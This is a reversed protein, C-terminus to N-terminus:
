AKAVNRSAKVYEAIEREKKKKNYFGAFNIAIVALPLVMLLVGFIACFCSVIKGFGTYPSIDGYGVTTITVLAFWFSHPLSRFPTGEEEYEAYYTLSGFFFVGVILVQILLLLEKMSRWLIKAVMQLGTSYRILKLIWIVRLMNLLLLLMEVDYGAISQNGYEDDQNGYEDYDYSSIDQTDNVDGYLYDKINESNTLALLIFFHFIALFDVIKMWVNKPSFWKNPSFVLRLIFELTVFAVCFLQILILKPNDVQRGKDDYGSVSPVTNLTMALLYLLVFFLSVLYYMRAPISSSPNELLNWVCSQDNEETDTEEHMERTAELKKVFYREKCCPSLNSEAIMWFELEDSLRIACSEDNFHLKGTRYFDLIDNFIIPSRDFYVENTLQSYEKTTQDKITSSSLNGLRSDPFRQLTKLLVEHSVGGVNLLIIDEAKKSKDEKTLNM